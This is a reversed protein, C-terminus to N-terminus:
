HTRTTKDAEDIMFLEITSAHQAWAEEEGVELDVVCM